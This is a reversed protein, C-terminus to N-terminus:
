TSLGFSAASRDSEWVTVSKLLLGATASDARVLRELEEFIYRALTEATPNIDTFPPITNLDQHDFRDILSKVLKKLDKFDLAIGLSNLGPAVAEVEVKFNHGHPRACDGDYGRIHHAASFEHRVRVGFVREQNRLM